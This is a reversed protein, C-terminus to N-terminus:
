KVMEDVITQYFRTSWEGYREGPGQRVQAIVLDHDLDILFICASFSGHGITRPSFVLDEDRGTDSKVGAKLPRLWHNGIGESEKVGPYRKSLDEPLLSQFVAESFFQRNGYLGHNCLLQALTALQLATPRAGSSSMGMPVDGIGLPTFLDEYYLRLASKGSVIEMAKGVLDFGMGSYQYKKGAENADIGNLLINELQPNRVGGFDGHGTLGSMHTMCQRFTPVHEPANRPYDPFVTAVSDDLRITGADLFRALMLATISKTISFVANRFNLDIPRGSKDNGFAAHSVIVGHRAVLNVFPEGGDKAWQRCIDDIKQKADDRMGADRPRGEHLMPAVNTVQAAPPLPRVSERLGLMKLKLALHFDDNRVAATEISLPARGLPKSETLGAILIAGEESDNLKRFIADSAAARLEEEHEQWVTKDIPGPLAPFTTPFGEPFYVLFTPPRCYVTMSRRVPTGNPATSEIWAGWRGPHDPAKAEKLDVDFWRVRLTGDGGLERVRDVDRWVLRPPANPNCIYSMSQATIIQQNQFDRRQQTLSETTPASAPAAGLTGYLLGLLLLLRAFRM